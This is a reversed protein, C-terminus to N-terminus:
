VGDFSVGGRLEGALIFVKGIKGFLEQFSCILGRGYHAVWFGFEGQLASGWAFVLAWGLYETVAVSLLCLGWGGVGM